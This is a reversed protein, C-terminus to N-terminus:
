GKPFQIGIGVDSNLDNQIDNEDALSTALVVAM